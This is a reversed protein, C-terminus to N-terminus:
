IGCVEALLSIIGIVAVFAEFCGVIINVVKRKKIGELLTQTSALVFTMSWIGWDIRESVLYKIIFLIPGIILTVLFAINGSFLFAKSEYEQGIDKNKRALSLLEEREESKM